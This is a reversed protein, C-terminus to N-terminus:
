ESISFEAGRSIAESSRIYHNARSRIAIIEKVELSFAFLKRWSGPQFKVYYDAELPSNLTVIFYSSM